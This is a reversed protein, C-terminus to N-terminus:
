QGLAWQVTKEVNFYYEWLMEKISNDSLGSIDEGGIIKCVQELGDNLQASLCRPYLNYLLILLM